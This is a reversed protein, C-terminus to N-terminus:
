TGGQTSAPDTPLLLFRGAIFLLKSGTLINSHLILIVFQHMGQLQLTLVLLLSLTMMVM